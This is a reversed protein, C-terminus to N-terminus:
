GAASDATMQVAMWSINDNHAVNSSSGDGQYIAATFSSTTSAYIRPNCKQSGNPASMLNVTPIPARTFRGAPLTITIAAVFPTNAPHAVNLMGAATAYPIGGQGRILVWSGNVREWLRKGGDTERYRDGDQPTPVTGISAAPGRFLFNRDSRDGIVGAWTDIKQFNNNLPDIDAVEDPTWVNTSGGGPLYLDLNPTSGAM